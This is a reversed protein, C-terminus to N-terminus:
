WIAVGALWPHAFVVGIFVAIAVMLKLYGIEAWVSRSQKSLQNASGQKSRLMALFPLYSTQEVIQAYREGELRLKKRDMSLPGVLAQFALAGFFIISASDGNALLHMLAWLGIGLMGPHRSIRLMGSVDVDGRQYAKESLLSNPSPTLTGIVLFLFALFNGLYFVWLPLLSEGKGWVPSGEAQSYAIVMTVLSLAVLLSFGIRFTVAGVGAILRDRVRTGAILFHILVFSVSAVILVAM